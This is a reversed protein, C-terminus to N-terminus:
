RFYISFEIESKIRMPLGDDLLLRKVDHFQSRFYSLCFSFMWLFLAIFVLNVTYNKNQKTKQIFFIQFVAGRDAPLLTSHRNPWAFLNCLEYVMEIHRYTSNKIQRFFIFDNLSRKSMEFRILQTFYGSNKIIIKKQIIKESEWEVITHTCVGCLRVSM